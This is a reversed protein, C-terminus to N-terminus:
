TDLRIDLANLVRWIKNGFTIGGGGAFLLGVPRRHRDWTWIISGSDGGASFPRGGLGRVAMQDRFFARRGSGFNVWISESAGTVRGARLQTTRGTKGVIMGRRPLAIQSSVRFHRFGASSRYIFEKRVRSPWCWGTACDVYNVPGNWRIPVFRELIAVRDRTNQGGDHRGPQLISDGFRGGNSNALVHNNSLMLRRRNRPARRGRALAGQTGATIRFHGASIGNPSPRQKHRHAEADIFGTHYINLALGDDSAAQVGFDDFLCRRTDENGIREATYVNLAMAGPGEQGIQEIDLEHAGVGVGQIMDGGDVDFTSAGASEGRAMMADEIASKAEMIEPSAEAHNAEDQEATESAAEQMEEGDPPTLMEAFDEDDIGNDQSDEGVDPEDFEGTSETSKKTTKRAM